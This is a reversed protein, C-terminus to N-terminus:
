AALVGFINGILLVFCINLVMDLTMARGPM